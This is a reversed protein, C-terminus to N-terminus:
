KGLRYSLTLRLRRRSWRYDDEQFFTDTFTTGRSIRSNFLDFVNLTLTGKKHFVKQSISCNLFAQALRSGQPREFPARYNFQLQIDTQKAITIRSNLRGRTTYTDSTYQPNLAAGNIVARYFYATGNLKLWDQHNFSFNFEFGLDEKFALNEPRRYTIPHPDGLTVQFIVGEIVDATRRYFISSTLTGKEGQWIYGLEHMNTFEPRLDPNGQHRSRASTFSPFPNLWRFRPRTVRRSFSLQLANKESFEYTLHASPFLNLNRRSSPLSTTIHAYELRTGLQFSLADLKGAYIAYAAQISETYRYESDLGEFVQWQTNQLEQALYDNSLERYSSQAGLELKEDKKLPLQYDLKANWQYNGEHVNTWQEVDALPQISADTSFYRELYTSREILQSNQLQFDATLHHEKQNFVRKYSLNFEQYQDTSEEKETRTSGGLEYDLNQWFDWFDIVVEDDGHTKRYLLSTNLTTKADIFYEAGIRLSALRGKLLHERESRLIDTSDSSHYVERYLSGDGVNQWRSATLQTFLNLKNKRFNLNLSSALSEPHGITNNFTGNLGEDKNKKLIINIIGATGEANYRASPNTIVEVKEIMDASLSRLGDNGLLGSPKGDILILVGESGRLSINGEMDVSVSPVNNLVDAASGGMSALDKGVNFVRKDLSLEVFSREARVEVTSLLHADSKLPISGLDITAGDATLEVDSIIESQYGLYACELYYSGPPLVLSFTGSTDVMMGEVMTSDAQSFISVTAYELTRDSDTAVIQGRIIGKEPPQAFLHLPLLLYFFSILPLKFRAKM